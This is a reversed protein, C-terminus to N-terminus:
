CFFQRNPLETLSDFYAMRHLRQESELLRKTTESYRLMYRLRHGLLPINIPKAIFDTAGVEYAKDISEMDELSTMMLIPIHEGKQQARLTECVKFGDIGGPMIVDLLIADASHELYISMGEEGSAAEIISFGIAELTTSIMYRILPDDDIVLISAKNKM